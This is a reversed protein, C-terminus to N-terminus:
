ALISQCLHCREKDLISEKTRPESSSPHIKCSTPSCPKSSPPQSNGPTCPVRKESKCDQTTSPPRDDVKSGEPSKKSPAKELTPTSQESDRSEPLRDPCKSKRAPAVRAEKKSRCPSVEVPDLLSEGKEEKLVGGNNKDEEPGDSSELFDNSVSEERSSDEMWSLEEVSDEESSVNGMNFLHM